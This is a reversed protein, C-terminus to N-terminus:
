KHIPIDFQKEPEMPTIVLSWFWKTINGDPDYSKSGDFTIEVNVYGQYPEGASLDAVPKINEPSPPPQLHLVVEVLPHMFRITRKSMPSIIIPVAGVSGGDVVVNAIYYGTDPTITFNKYGGQAV